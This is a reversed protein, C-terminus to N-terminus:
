LDELLGNLTQILSNIKERASLQALFSGMPENCRMKIIFTEIQESVGYLESTSRDLQSAKQIMTSAEWTGIFTNFLKFIETMDRNSAGEYREALERFTFIMYPKFKENEITAVLAGVSHGREIAAENLDKDAISDSSHYIKNLVMVLNGHQEIDSYGVTVKAAANMFRSFSNESLYFARTWQELNAIMEQNQAVLPPFSVAAAAGAAAPGGPNQATAQKQTEVM